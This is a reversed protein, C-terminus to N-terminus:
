GITEDTSCEKNNAKECRITFVQNKLNKEDNKFHFVFSIM